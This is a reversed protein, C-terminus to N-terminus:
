AAQVFQDCAEVAELADLAIFDAGVHDFVHPNALLAPGGLVIKLAPNCSAVRLQAVLDACEPARHSVGVSMGIVDYHTDRLVTLLSPGAEVHVGGDVQWCAHRYCKSVIALGLTHKEGSTRALFIRRKGGSPTVRHSDEASYKECWLTLRATAFEVDVMSISDDNWADGLHEALPVAIQRYFASFPVEDRVLRETILDLFAQDYSILGAYVQDARLSLKQLVDTDSTSPTAPEAVDRLMRDQVRRHVADTGLASLLQSQADAKHRNISSANSVNNNQSAMLGNGDSDINDNDKSM